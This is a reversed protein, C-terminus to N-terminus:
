QLGACRYHCTSWAGTDDEYAGLDHDPLACEDCASLIAEVKRLSFSAHWLRLILAGGRVGFSEGGVPSSSLCASSKDQQYFPYVYLHLTRLRFAGLGCVESM